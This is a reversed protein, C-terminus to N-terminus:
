LHRSDVRDSAFSPYNTTNFTVIKCVSNHFVTFPPPHLAYFTKSGPFNLCHMLLLKTHLCLFIYQMYMQVIYM